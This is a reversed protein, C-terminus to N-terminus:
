FQRSQEITWNRFEMIRNNVFEAETGFYDELQSKSFKRWLLTELKTYSWAKWVNLSKNNLHKEDFENM